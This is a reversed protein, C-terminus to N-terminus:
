PSQARKSVTSAAKPLLRKLSSSSNTRHNQSAFHLFKKHRRFPAQEPEVEPLPIARLEKELDEEEGSEQGSMAEAPEEQAAAEAIHATQAIM